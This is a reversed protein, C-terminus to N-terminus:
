GTAGADAELACANAPGGARATCKKPLEKQHNMEGGGPSVLVDRGAAELKDLGGKVIGEVRAM